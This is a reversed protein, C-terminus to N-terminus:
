QASGGQGRAGQGSSDQTQGPLTIGQEKARQQILAEYRRRIQDQQGASLMGRMRQRYETREQSTLLESGPLDDAALATAPPTATVAVFALSLALISRRSSLM